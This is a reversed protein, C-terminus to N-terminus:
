MATKFCSFHLCVQSKFFVCSPVESEKEQKAHRAEELPMDRQQLHYALNTLVQLMNSFSLIWTNNLSFYNDWIRKSRISM